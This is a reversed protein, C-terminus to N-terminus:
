STGLILDNDSDLFESTEDDRFDLNSEGRLGNREDHFLVFRERACEDVDDDISEDDLFRM